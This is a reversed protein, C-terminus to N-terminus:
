GLKGWFRSCDPTFIEDAIVLNGDQDIGFEMKTDAIIIGRSRAWEEAAVYYEIARNRVKEALEIGVLKVADEFSINEDHGAEAKTSPTFIVEPLKQYQKLGEPLKIGCVSGTKLYEKWASGTIYGRVIAELPVMKLKKVLMSRGELHHASIVKQLDQPM